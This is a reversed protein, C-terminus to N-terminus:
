ILELELTETGQNQLEHQRRGYSSVKYRQPFVLPLLLLTYTKSSGQWCSLLPGRMDQIPTKTLYDKARPFLVM